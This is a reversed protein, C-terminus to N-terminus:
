RTTTLKDTDLDRIYQPLNKWVRHYGFGGTTMEAIAKDKTWGEVVIRYIAVMTGTRDSGHQCHVFVPTANTDTVIQLFRRVDEDEPHWTKVWLHERRLHTGSLEVNDTHFSRLNIVTKVGLRELQKMGEATPQAGRYLTPSVRHFNELGPPEAQAALVWCLATLQWLKRM